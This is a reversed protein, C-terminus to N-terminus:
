YVVNEGSVIIITKSIGKNRLEALEKLESDGRYNKFAQLDPFELYHVEGINPLTSEVENPEFASLLKGNYKGMIKIAKKEFQKFSSQDKVELLAIIQIM